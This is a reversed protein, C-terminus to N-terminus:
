YLARNGPCSYSKTHSYDQQLDQKARLRGLVVPNVFELHSPNFCLTLHVKNGTQTLSQSSSEASWMSAAYGGGLVIAAALFIFKKM